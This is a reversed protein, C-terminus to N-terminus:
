GGKGEGGRREGGEEGRGEEERGKGGYHAIHPLVSIYPLREYFHPCTNLLLSVAPAYYCIYTPIYCGPSMGAFKVGGGVSFGGSTGGGWGKHLIAVNKFIQFSAGTRVESGLLGM